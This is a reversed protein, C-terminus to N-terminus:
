HTIFYIFALFATISILFFLLLGSTSMRMYAHRHTVGRPSSAENPIPSYGASGPESHQNSDDGRKQESSTHCIPCEDLHAPIGAGCGPCDIMIENEVATESGEEGPRETELRVTGITEVDESSDPQPAHSGSNDPELKEEEDGGSASDTEAETAPIKSQGPRSLGYTKKEWSTAPEFRIGKDENGPTREKEEDQFEDHQDMVEAVQAQAREGLVAGVDIVWKEECSCEILGEADAPVKIIRGCKPCKIEALRESVKKDLGGRLALLENDVNIIWSCDDYPCEMLGHMTTDIEVPRGCNYCNINFTKVDGPAFEGEEQEVEEISFTKGCDPNLCELLGTIEKNPELKSGCYRCFYEKGPIYGEEASSIMELLQDGDKTLINHRRASELAEQEFFGTTLCVGKPANELNMRQLLREIQTPAILERMSIEFYQVVVMIGQLDKLLSWCQGQEDVQPTKIIDYGTPQFMTNLIGELKVQIEKSKKPKIGVLKYNRWLWFGAALLIVAAFIIGLVLPQHKLLDWFFLRLVIFVSIVCLGLKETFGFMKKRAESM